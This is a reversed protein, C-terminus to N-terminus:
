KNNKVFGAFNIGVRSILTLFIFGGVRTNVNKTMKKSCKQVKFPMKWIKKVHKLMNWCILINKITSLHRLIDLHQQFPGGCHFCCWTQPFRYLSIYFSTVLEGLESVCAYASESQLYLQCLTMEQSRFMSLSSAM